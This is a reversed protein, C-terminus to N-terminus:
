KNVKEDVLLSERMTYKQKWNLTTNALTSDIELNGIIQEVLSSQGLLKGVYIMLWKPVPLQIIKKNKAEAINNTIDKISLPESEAILFTKNSAKPHYACVLIFDVLNDVSIVNRKNNISGFPLIPFYGVLKQLLGFNGPAKKGYVLPPRIIVVEMNTSLSLELLAKEAEFKSKTYHNNPNPISEETFKENFSSNGLVGISSIFIFRKVGAEAAQIALNLTGLFNVKEYDLVSQANGHAVSALHILVSIKSLGEHWNTDASIDGVTYSSKNPCPKRVFSRYSINREQILKILSTGVFGSGGTIGLVFVGM